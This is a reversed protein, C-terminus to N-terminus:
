LISGTKENHENILNFLIEHNWAYFNLNLAKIPRPLIAHPTGKLAMAIIKNGKSISEELEWNVWNSEHTSSSILCITISSRNIKERIKKRIYTSNQSNIPIRVSEDFFEIDFDPNKALLRLGCVQMRDESKFSLFVRKKNM